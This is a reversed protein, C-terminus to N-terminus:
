PGLYVDDGAPRGAPAGAGLVARQREPHVPVRGLGVVQQEDLVEGVLRGVVGV